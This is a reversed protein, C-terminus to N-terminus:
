FFAELADLRRAMGDSVIVAPRGRKLVVFLPLGHEDGVLARFDSLSMTRYSPLGLDHAASAVSATDDNGTILLVYALRSKSTGIDRLRNLEQATLGCSFPNTFVALGTEMDLEASLRQWGGLLESDGNPDAFQQSGCGVAAIVAICSASVLLARNSM